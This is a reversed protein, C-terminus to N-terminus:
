IEKSINKLIDSTSKLEKVQAKTKESSSIQKETATHVSEYSALMVKNAKSIQAILSEVNKTIELSDDSLRVIEDAVIGFGKGYKGAQTAEIAANLGLLKTQVTVKKTYAALIKSIEGTLANVHDMNERLEKECLRINEASDVFEGITIDMNAVAENIENAVNIVKTEQDLSIGVTICGIVNESDDFIPSDVEKFPVGFMEEPINSHITKKQKMAILMPDDEYLVDDTQVDFNYGAFYKLVRAKDSIWVVADRGFIEKLYPGVALFHDILGSGVLM